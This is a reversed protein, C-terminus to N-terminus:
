SITAMTEEIDSDSFGLLKGVQKIYIKEAIHFTGDRKALAVLDVLLGIAEDPSGALASYNVTFNKGTSLVSRVEAIEDAKLGANCLINKVYEKEEPQVAGDVKMLNILTQIKPLAVNESRKYTAQEFTPDPLTQASVNVTPIDEIPEDSLEIERSLIEEAKKGVQLTMYGTWAAMAVAGVGPLWKSIASKLAQQTIRGALLVVVKQFVRLTVRKVLVKSGHMLLVSTAGSGLATLFIGVLLEKNMDDKKGYAAGIDYIMALQNHIVSVLEPILALMGFPGPVLSAAGSIGANKVSYSHIISSVSGQDFVEHHNQDFYNSRESIVLAFLGMMKETLQTQLKEAVDNSDVNSAQASQITM